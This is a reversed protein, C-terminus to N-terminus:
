AGGGRKGSAENAVRLVLALIGVMGLVAGAILGWPSTALWRDAAYGMGVFLVMSAGIQLGLGIHAGAARMGDGYADSVTGVTPRVPRYGAGPPAPASEAAPEDDLPADSWKREWAADAEAWRDPRDPFADDPRPTDPPTNV